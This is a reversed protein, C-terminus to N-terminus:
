KEPEKEAKPIKKLILENYAYLTDEAIPRKKETLTRVTETLYSLLADDLTRRRMLINGTERLKAFLTNRMDVFFPYSRGEEAFDAVFIIKQFLTMRKGATTHRLIAHFVRPTVLAPYCERAVYAGTKAHLTMPAAIDTPRLRIGYSRCLAAQERDPVEKTIDHLLAALRLEPIADPMLLEGLRLAAEEVGLTHRLRYEGMRSSLDRRIACLVEENLLPIAQM